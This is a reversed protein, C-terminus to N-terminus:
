RPLAAVFVRGAYPDFTFVPDVPDRSDRRGVMGTLEM